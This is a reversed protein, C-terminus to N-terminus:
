GAPFYWARRVKGDRVEYVALSARGGVIQERFSVYAPGDIVATMTSQVTPQANFYARMEAALEERGRVAPEGVEQEDVYYLEFDPTVLAAMAEPDHRNFADLLARATALAGSAARAEQAAVGPSAWLTAVLFGALTRLKKPRLGPRRDM